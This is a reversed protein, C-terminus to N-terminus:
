KKIIRVIFDFLSEKGLYIKYEGNVINNIKTNLNISIMYVNDSSTIKNISYENEINDIMIKSNNKVINVYNKDVLLTIDNEVITFSDSYFNDKKIILLAIIIVILFILKILYKKNTKEIEIEDNNFLSDLMNM